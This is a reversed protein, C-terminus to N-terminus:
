STSRPDFAVAAASRPHTRRYHRAQRARNGCAASCWARRPHDRVFMLVCAPADCRRLHARLDTGVLEIADAAIAGLAVATADLGHHDVAMAAGDGRPDVLRVSHPSRRSADNVARVASPSPTRDEVAGHLVERVADRLRRFDDLRRVDARRAEAPLLDRVSALWARLDAQTRLADVLEGDGMRITNHLAIALPEASARDSATM